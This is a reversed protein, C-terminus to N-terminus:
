LVFKRKRVKDQHISYSLGKKSGGIGVNSERNSSVGVGILKNLGIESIYLLGIGGKLRNIQHHSSM